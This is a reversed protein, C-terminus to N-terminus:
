KLNFQAKAAALVEEKTTFFGRVERVSMDSMLVAVGTSYKPFLGPREMAVVCMENMIKNADDGEKFLYIYDNAVLELDEFMVAKSPMLPKEAAAQDGLHAIINVGAEKLNNRSTAMKAKTKAKELAPMIMAALIGTTAIMSSSGGGLADQRFNFHNISMLGDKRVQNVGYFYLDDGFLGTLVDVGQQEKQTMEAIIPKYFMEVAGPALYAFSNGKSPVGDSLKQFTETSVLGKKDKFNNLSELLRGKDASVFVYEDSIAIAPAIVPMPSPIEYVTYAGVTEKPFQDLPLKGNLLEKLYSTKTKVFMTADLKPLKVMKGDVPYDTMKSENACVFLGIENDLSELLRNLDVGENLLAGPAMAIGMKVKPDTSKSAIKLVQQWLVGLNLDGSVAFVTQKPLYNLATLSHSESGLFKFLSGETSSAYLLSKNLYYDGKNISSQGVAHIDYAGADKMLIQILSLAERVQAKEAETSTNNIDSFGQIWDVFKETTTKVDFRSYNFYDGGQDLQSTM